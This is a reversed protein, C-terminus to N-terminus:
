SNGPHVLSDSDQENAPADALGAPSLDFEHISQRESIAPSLSCPTTMMPEKRPFRFPLIFRETTALVRSGGCKACSFAAALTERQPDM